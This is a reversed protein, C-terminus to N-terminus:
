ISTYPAVRCSISPIQRRTVERNGDRIDNTVFVVSWVCSYTKRRLRSFIEHRTGRFFLARIPAASALLLVFAPEILLAVLTWVFAFGALCTVDSAENRILSTVTLWRASCPASALGIGALVRWSIKFFARLLITNTRSGHINVCSNHATWSYM